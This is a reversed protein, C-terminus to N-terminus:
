DFVRRRSFQNRKEQQKQIDNVLNDLAQESPKIVANPNQM